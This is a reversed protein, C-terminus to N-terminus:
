KSQSAKLQNLYDLVQTSYADEPQLALARAIIEEVKEYDGKQFYFYTLKNYIEVLNTKNKQVEEEGRSEVMEIYKFFYENAVGQPDESNELLSMNRARFLYPDLLDPAKENVFVLAKDVKAVLATDIPQKANVRLANAYYSALAFYYSDTVQNKSGETHGSIEFIKSAEVYKANKFFELAVENLGDANTADLAVATKVEEIGKDFAVSDITDNASAQHILSLGYYLHDVPLIREKEIKNFFKAMADSAERYDEKHYSSHGLYRLVKPNIDELKSLERAQVLLEDYDGAFVLFDAYRIRSDVSYDTLDMFQKYYKVATRNLDRYTATDTASVLAWYNYTQALERYTPAYDPKQQTIAVLADIAEQWARSNRIIVAMQIEAKTLDPNATIADRYSVYASSPEGSGLYADGMALHVLADVRKGSRQVAQRLYNLAKGYDPEPADLFARGAFYLELYDRKRTKEIAENFKAEAAATNGAYLELTGLGIQNIVTKPDNALGQEFAMKASDLYENQIYVQGLYFNNIGKKPQKQVLTKLIEKAKAFQEQEIAKTADDLKQAQVGIALFFLSAGLLLKRKM